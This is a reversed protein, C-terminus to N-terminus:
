LPMFVYIIVTDLPHLAQKAFSLELVLLLELGMEAGM